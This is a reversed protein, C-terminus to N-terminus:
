SKGQIFLRTDVRQQLTQSCEHWQYWCAHVSNIHIHAARRLARILPYETVDLCPDVEVAHKNGTPHTQLNVTSKRSEDDINPHLQQIGKSPRRRVHYQASEVPRSRPAAATLVAVFGEGVIDVDILPSEPYKRASTGRGAYSCARSSWVLPTPGTFDRSITLTKHPTSM